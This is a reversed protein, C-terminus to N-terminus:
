IGWFLFTAGFEALREDSAPPAKLLSSIDTGGPKWGDPGFTEVRGSGDPFKVMRALAGDVIRPEVLVKVKPAM